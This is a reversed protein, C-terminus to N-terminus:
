IDVLCARRGRRARCHRPRARSQPSIARIRATDLNKRRLLLHSPRIHRHCLAADLCVFVANCLKLLADRLQLLFEILDHSPNAEFLRVFCRVLGHGRKWVDTMLREALVDDLARLESLALKSHDTANPKSVRWPLAILELLNNSARRDRSTLIPGFRPPAPCRANSTEQPDFHSLSTSLLDKGSQRLLCVNAVSARAERERWNLFAGTSACSTRAPCTTSGVSRM